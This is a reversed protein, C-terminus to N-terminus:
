VELLNIKIAKKTYGRWIVWSSRWIRFGEAPTGFWCVQHVRAAAYIWTTHTWSSALLTIIFTTSVRRIIRWTNFFPSALRPGNPAVATNNPEPPPPPPPHLRHSLSPIVRMFRGAAPCPMSYSSYLPPSDTQGLSIALSAFFKCSICYSSIVKNFDKNSNSTYKWFNYFVITSRFSSFFYYYPRLQLLSVKPLTFTYQLQQYVIHIM